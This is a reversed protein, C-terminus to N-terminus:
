KSVQCASSELAAQAEAFSATSLLRDDIGWDIRSYVRHINIGSTSTSDVYCGSSVHPTVIVMACAYMIGIVASAVAGFVTVAVIKEGLDDLSHIGLWSKVSM